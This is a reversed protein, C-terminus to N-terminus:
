FIVLLIYVKTPLKEAYKVGDDWIGNVANDIGSMVNETREAIFGASSSLGNFYDQYNM